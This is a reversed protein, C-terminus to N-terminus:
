ISDQYFNCYSFQIKKNERCLKRERNEVMLLEKSISKLKKERESNM